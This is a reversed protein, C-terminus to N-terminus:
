VGLLHNGLLWWGASLLMVGYAIGLKWAIEPEKERLAVLAVVMAAPLILFGLWRSWLMIQTAQSLERGAKAFATKATEGNWGVAFAASFLVNVAVIMHVTVLKRLRPDEITM